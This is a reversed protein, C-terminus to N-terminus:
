PRLVVEFCIWASRGAAHTPSGQWEIRMRYFPPHGDDRFVARRKLVSVSDTIRVDKIVTWPFYRHGPINREIRVDVRGSTKPPWPLISMRFTMIDGHYWRAYDAWYDRPKVARVVPKTPGRVVLCRELRAPMREPSGGFFAIVRYYGRALDGLEFSGAGQPDLPRTRRRIEDGTRRDIVRVAVSRDGVPPPPSVTFAFDSTDGRDIRTCSPIAVGSLGGAVRSFGRLSGQVQISEADTGTSWVVLKYAGSELRQNLTCTDSCIQEIVAHDERDVQYPSSLASSYVGYGCLAGAETDDFALVLKAAEDLGPADLDIRYTTHGSTGCLGGPQADGTVAVLDVQGLCQEAACTPGSGAPLIPATVGAQAAGPVGIAALALLGAVTTRVSGM